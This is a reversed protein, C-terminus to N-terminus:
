RVTMGNGLAEHRCFDDGLLAIVRGVVLWRAAAQHDIRAPHNRDPFSPRDRGDPSLRLFPRKAEAQVTDASVAIEPAFNARSAQDGLPDRCAAWASM